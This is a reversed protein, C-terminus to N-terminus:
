LFVLKVQKLIQSDTANKPCNPQQTTVFQRIIFFVSGHLLLFQM